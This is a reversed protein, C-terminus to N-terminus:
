PSGDPKVYAHLCVLTKALASANGATSEPCKAGDDNYAVAYFPWGTTSAAGDLKADDNKFQMAEIWERATKLAQKDTPKGAQASAAALVFIVPVFRPSMPTIM